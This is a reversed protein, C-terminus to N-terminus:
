STVASMPTLHPLGGVGLKIALDRQLEQRVGEGIIRIAEGPELPFSLDEGAEVM